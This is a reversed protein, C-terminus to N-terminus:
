AAEAFALALGVRVFDSTYFPAGASTAELTLTYSRGAALRLPALQSTQACGSCGVGCTISRSQASGAGDDLKLSVSIAAGLHAQAAATLNAAVM